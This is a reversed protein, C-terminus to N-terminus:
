VFLSVQDGPRLDVEREGPFYDERTVRIKHHGPAVVRTVPAVRAQKEDESDLMVKAGAVSASIQISSQRKLQFDFYNPKGIDVQVEREAPLYGGAEVRIRFTGPKLKLDFPTRGRLEGVGDGLYIAAGAPFSTIQVPVEASELLYRLRDQALKAWSPAPKSELYRRLHIVAEVPQKLKEYCLSLNYSISPRYFLDAAAHFHRLAAEYDGKRYAQTGRQYRTDAEREIAARSAADRRASVGAGKASSAGAPAPAPAASALSSAAFVLATALLAAGQGVMVRM